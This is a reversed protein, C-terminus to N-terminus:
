AWLEAIQESLKANIRRRTINGKTANHIMLPRKDPPLSKYAEILGAPTQYVRQIAVAKEASVGKSAMLMRCFLEAVTKNRSKGTGHFFSDYDIAVNKGLEDRARMMNQQYSDVNPVVVAIDEHLEELVKTMKDFYAVTEAQNKTQRLYFSNHVIVQTMATQIRQAHTRLFDQSGGTKEVLYVVHPITSKELRNKQDVFRGDIISSVLDDYRKREVIVDLVARRGTVNNEAVWTIDGVSLPLVVVNVNREELAERFGGRNSKSSTERNDLLLKVTYEGKKWTSYSYGDKPITANHESGEGLRVLPSSELPNGLLRQSEKECDRLAQAIEKGRDELGYQRNRVFVLENKVLTALAPNISPALRDYNGSDNTMLSPKIYREVADKGFGQTYPDLRHLERLGMLVFYAVTGRRPKYKLNPGSSSQRSAQQTEEEVREPYQLGNEECYKRAREELIKITKEGIGRLKILEYPARSQIPTQKIVRICNTLNLVLYKNTRKTQEARDRAEQLWQIYLSKWDVFPDM